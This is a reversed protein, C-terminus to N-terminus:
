QQNFLVNSSYYGDDTKMGLFEFWFRDSIAAPLISDPLVDVSDRLHDITKNYADMGSDAIIKGSFNSDVYYIGREGFKARDFNLNVAYWGRRNANLEIARRNLRETNQKMRKARETEKKQEVIRIHEEISDALAPYFNIRTVGCGTTALGYLDGIDKGDFLVRIKRECNQNVSLPRDKAWNKFILGNIFCIAEDANNCLAQKEFYSFVYKKM